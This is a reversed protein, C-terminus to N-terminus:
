VIPYWNAFGYAFLAQFAAFVACALVLHVRRRVVLGAALFLPFLVAIHRGTSMLGTGVALLLSSACLLAYSAGLRRWVVATLPVAVVAAAMSWAHRLLRAASGHGALTEAIHTVLVAPESRGWAAQVNLFVFPDGFRAQFYVLLALLSAAPLAFALADRRLGRPSYGIQHLYEVALAAAVLFGPIRTVACLGALSCAWWWRRRRAMVFAWVSLALFLSESYAASFFVAFPFTCLLWLARAAAPESLLEAGLRHIGFCAALLAAWSLAIGAALFAQQEPLWARLPLSLAASALPFLPFFAVNCQSGATYFYGGDAITWYWGSDWRAWGDLWLQGPFAQWRWRSENTPFFRLGIWAVFFLPARTALWPLWVARSSSLDRAAPVLQM